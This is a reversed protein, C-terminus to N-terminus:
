GGRKLLARLGAAIGWAVLGVALVLLLVGVVFSLFPWIPHLVIDALGDKRGLGRVILDTLLLLLDVAVIGLFANKFDQKSPALAIGVTLSLYVCVYSVWSRWDAAQLQELTARSLELMSNLVSVVASKATAADQPLIPLASGALGRWCLWLILGCGFVPALSIIPQGVLPLRPRGHTVSGGKPEFVTIREISAGTLLCAAAHSLEHVVIGPIMFLRYGRGLVRAFLHDSANAVLVIFLVWFLLFLYGM